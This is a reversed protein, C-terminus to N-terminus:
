KEKEKTRKRRRRTKNEPAVTRQPGPSGICDEEM